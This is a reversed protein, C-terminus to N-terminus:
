RGSESPLTDWSHGSQHQLTEKPSALYHKRGGVMVTRVRDCKAHKFLSAQVSAHIHFGFDYGPIHRAVETAVAHLSRPERTDLAALSWEEFSRVFDRSDDVLKNMEQKDLVGFHGTCYLEASLARAKEAGELYLDPDYYYSPQHPVGEPVTPGWGLAVDGCIAVKKDPDFLMVHGPSHGTTHMLTFEYSGLRLQDGDTLYQDVAVNPGCQELLSRGGDEFQWDKPMCMYMEHLHREHDEAWSADAEHIAIEMNPYAERIAGNGGFHDVHGHTCVLLDPQLRAREMEPLLHEEPTTSVGSDILATREGVILYAYLPVGFLPAKISYLGEAIQEMNMGGQVLREAIQEM